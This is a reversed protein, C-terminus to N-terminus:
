WRRVRGTDVHIFDSKAYYGVGGAKLSLAADRLHKLECGPLRIDIAKGQMHLSRKAVGGSKTRLKQNTQPSRYGFIIHFAGSIGTVQQLVYLLDLLKPDM